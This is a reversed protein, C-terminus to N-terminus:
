CFDFPCSAFARSSAPSELHGAKRRIPVAVTDGRRADEGTTVPQHRIGRHPGRRPLPESGETGISVNWWPGDHRHRFPQCRLTGRRRISSARSSQDAPSRRTRHCLPCVPQLHSFPSPTSSGTHHPVCTSLGRGLPSPVRDKSNPPPRHCGDRPNPRPHFFITRTNDPVVLSPNESSADGLGVVDALDHKSDFFPIM